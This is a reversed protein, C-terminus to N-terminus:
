NERNAQQSQCHRLPEDVPLLYYAIRLGREVRKNTKEIWVIQSFTTRTTSMKSSPVSGSIM